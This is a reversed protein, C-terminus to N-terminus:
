GGNIEAFFWFLLGTGGTGGLLVEDGAEFQKEWVSFTRDTGNEDLVVQTDNMSWGREQLWRYNSEDLRDDHAAYFTVTGQLDERITVTALPDGEIGEASWAKSDNASRIFELGQYPGVDGFVYDRDVYSKVGSQLGTEPVEWSSAGDNQAIDAIIDGIGFSIEAPTVETKFTDIAMPSPHFYTTYEIIDNSVEYDYDELVSSTEGQEIVATKRDGSATQYHVETYVETDEADGWEIELQDNIFLTQELARSLLSNIYSEGYVEGITTVNISRNREEDFTYIDFTYSGGAMDSLMINVMGDEAERDIPVELSDSGNRWYVRAKSVSPDSPLPFSIQVRNKGPYVKISDANPIAPYDIPGGETFGEYSSHMSDSCSVSSIAVAIIALLFYKVHISKM